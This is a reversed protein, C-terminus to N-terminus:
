TGALMNDNQHILAAAKGVLGDPKGQLGKLPM